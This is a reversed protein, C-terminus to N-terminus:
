RVEQREFRGLASLCRTVNFRVLRGVKIHPLIKAKMWYDVTRQSVRLITALERKTVLGGQPTETASVASIQKIGCGQCRLFRRIRFHAKRIEARHVSSRSLEKHRSLNRSCGDKRNM